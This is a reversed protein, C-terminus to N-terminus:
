IPVHLRLTPDRLYARAAEVWNASPQGHLAISFDYKLDKPGFPFKLVYPVRM